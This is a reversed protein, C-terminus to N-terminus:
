ASNKSQSQRKMREPNNRWQDGTAYQVGVSRPLENKLLRDKKGKWATRPTRLALISFLNANGEGTSWSKDSSDVMVEDMKHPGVLCPEYNWQTLCPQPGDLWNSLNETITTKKRDMRQHIFILPKHFSGSSKFLPPSSYHPKKSLGWFCLLIKIQKNGNLGM